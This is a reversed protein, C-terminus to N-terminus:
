KKSYKPCKSLEANNVNNWLYIIATNETQNTKLQKNYLM